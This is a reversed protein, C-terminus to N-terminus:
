EGEIELLANYLIFYVETVRKPVTKTPYNGLKMNADQMADTAHKLKVSLVTAVNQWYDKEQQVEHLQVEAHIARGLTNMWCKRATKWKKAMHIAWYRAEIVSTSLLCECVICGKYGHYYM